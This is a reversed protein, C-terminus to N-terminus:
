AHEPMLGASAAAKQLLQEAVDWVEDSGAREDPRSAFSVEVREFGLARYLKSLSRCFRAVEAEVQEAACFVHGDDQTFQRLRFLGHLDSSCVDSSWDGIYRTHRRRSSFFFFCSGM